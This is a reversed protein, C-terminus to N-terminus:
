KISCVSSNVNLDTGDKRQQTIEGKWYGKELIQRLIESQTCPYGSKTVKGLHRGFVEYVKWGYLAEAARNWTCIKFDLDTSIIADSVNQLLDAQYHLKAETRKHETINRIIGLTGLNKEDESVSMDYRGASGIDGCAIVSGIITNCEHEVRDKPILRIELDKIKRTGTRREDFFKPANVRGVERGKYKPLIYRRGFYRVDDPHVIKSFHEGKLEGSKYGLIGIADNIFIFYGVSDIKYVIDPLYNLIALYEDM